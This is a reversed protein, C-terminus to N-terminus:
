GTPPPSPLEAWHTPNLTPGKWVHPQRWAKKRWYGVFIRQGQIPDAECLIIETGDKPASEISKWEM